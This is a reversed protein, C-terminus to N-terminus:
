LPDYYIMDKLIDTRKTTNPIKRRMEEFHAYVVEQAPTPNSRATRWRGYQYIDFDGHNQTYVLHVSSIQHVFKQYILALTNQSKWPIEKHIMEHPVHATTVPTTFNYQTFCSNDFKTSIRISKKHQFEQNLQFCVRFLGVISLETGGASCWIACYRNRNNVRWM